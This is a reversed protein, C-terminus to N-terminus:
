RGGRDRDRSRWKKRAYYALGLAIVVALIILLAVGGGSSGTDTVGHAALSPSIPM